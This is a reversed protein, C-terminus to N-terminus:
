IATKNPPYKTLTPMKKSAGTNLPPTIENATTYLSLSEKNLDLL